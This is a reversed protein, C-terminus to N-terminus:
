IPRAADPARRMPAPEPAATKEGVAQNLVGVSRPGINSSPGHARVASIERDIAQDLESVSTVIVGQSVGAWFRIAVLMATALAVFPMLLHTAFLSMSGNGSENVAESAQVMEEYGGFLGGFPMTPFADQWPVSLLGLVLAWTCATVAKEVGPVSGGGAVVVGLCVLIALAVAAIVGVTVSLDSFEELVYHWKSLVLANQEAEIQELTKTKRQNNLTQSRPNASSEKPQEGDPDTVSAVVSLDQMQAPQEAKDWRADTFHVFGFVMLQVAVAVVVAVAVAAVNFRLHALAASVHPKAQM